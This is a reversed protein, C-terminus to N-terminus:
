SVKQKTKTNHNVQKNQQCDFGLSWTHYALVRGSLYAKTETWNNECVAKALLARALQVEFPMDSFYLHLEGCPFPSRCLLWYKTQRFFAFEWRYGQDGRRSCDSGCPMRDERWCQSALVEIVHFQERVFIWFYKPVNRSLGQMTPKRVELLCMNM